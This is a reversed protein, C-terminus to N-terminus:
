APSEISPTVTKGSPLWVLSSNRQISRRFLLATVGLASATLLPSVLSRTVVVTGISQTLLLWVTLVANLLNSLAWVVSVRAFFRQVRPHAITSAPLPCFDRALREALPKGLPVSFLFAAAIIVAGLTPQVFYFVVSGTLLIVIVRASLAVTSLLLMGPVRRRMICRAIIGVYLWAVGASLAIYPGTLWVLGVVLATPIVTSEVVTPLARRVMALPKPLELHLRTTECPAAVISPSDIDSPSTASSARM